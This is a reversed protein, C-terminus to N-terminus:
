GAPRIKQLKEIENKLKIAKDEGSRRGRYVHDPVQVWYVSDGPIGNIWIILLSM